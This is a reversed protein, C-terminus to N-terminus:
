KNYKLKIDGIRAFDDTDSRMTVIIVITDEPSAVLTAMNLTTNIWAGNSVNVIPNIATALTVNRVEVSIDGNTECMNAITNTSWSKFDMPVEFRLLVDYDQNTVRPTFWEYYNMNSVSIHNTTMYGFHNGAMGNITDFVAGSYESAFFLKGQPNLNLNTYLTDGSEVVTISDGTMYITDILENTSDLDELNVKFISDTTYFKLTDIGGAEFLNVSDIGGSIVEVGFVSNAEYIKLTDNIYTVSDILENISDLDQLVVFNADQIYLTDNSLTLNQDDTDVAGSPLRVKILNTSEYFFLTDSVLVVSDILENTPNETKWDVTTVTGNESTYTFTSDGNDLLSTVATDKANFTTATGDESAYTFTGNGNDVLTTIVTDKANFPTVTGDESTYTFTGDFNDTLITVTELSDRLVNIFNTDKLLTDKLILFLSDIFIQNKLITDGQNYIISVISDVFSSSSFLTDSNNLLINIVRSSDITIRKSLSDMTMYRVEGSTPDVVLVTSDNNQFSFFGEIRLPEDGGIPFVHFTATPTNTNVSARQADVRFVILIVFSLLFLINKMSM